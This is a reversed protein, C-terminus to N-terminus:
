QRSPIFPTECMRFKLEFFMATLNQGITSKADHLTRLESAQDYKEKTGFKAYTQMEFMKPSINLFSASLIFSNLSVILIFSVSLRLAIATVKSTELTIEMM